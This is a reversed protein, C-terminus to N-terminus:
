EAAPTDVITGVVTKGVNKVQAEDQRGNAYRLICTADVATINAAGDVEGVLTTTGDSLQITKGANKVQAEDKRGNAYRLTCTADVATINPAGDVEGVLIETGGLTFSGSAVKFEGGVYYGVKVKYTGAGNEETPSGLLGMSGFDFSVGQNIYVIDDQEVATEDGNPGIVLVTTQADKDAGLADTNLTMVGTAEDYNGTVDGTISAAMASTAIAATIASVAM